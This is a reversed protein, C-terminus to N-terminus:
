GIWDNLDDVAIFLINPPADIAAPEASAGAEQVTGAPTLVSPTQGCGAGAVLSVVLLVRAVRYPVM